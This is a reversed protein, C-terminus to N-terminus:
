IKIDFNLIKEFFIQCRNPKYVVPLVPLISPHKCKVPRQHWGVHKPLHVACLSLCIDGCHHFELVLIGFNFFINVAADEWRTRGRLLIHGVGSPLQLPLQCLSHLQEAASPTAPLAGRPWRVGGPAAPLPCAGGSSGHRRLARWWPLCRQVRSAFPSDGRWKWRESVVQAANLPQM